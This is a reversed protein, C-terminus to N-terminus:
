AEDADFEDGVTYTIQEKDMVLRSFAYAIKIVAMM